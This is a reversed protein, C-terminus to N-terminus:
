KDTVAGTSASSVTKAYKSLLGRTYKPKPQQWALKRTAMENESIHLTIERTQADITISDGNKILGIPGGEHAEPTIHGVVFGRSGGSFRGDTILAVDNGLGKGM